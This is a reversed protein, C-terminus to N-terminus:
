HCNCVLMRDALMAKMPYQLIYVYHYTQYHRYFGLFCPVRYQCTMLFTAFSLYTGADISYMYLM